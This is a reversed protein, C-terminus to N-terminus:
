SNCGNKYVAWGWGGGVGNEPDWIFIITFLINIKLIKNLIRQM